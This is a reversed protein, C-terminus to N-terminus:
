GGIMLFGVFGIKLFGCRFSISSHDLPSGSANFAISIAIHRYSHHHHTCQCRGRVTVKSGDKM